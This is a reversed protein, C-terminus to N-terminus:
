RSAQTEPMLTMVTYRDEPFYKKLMAHVNEKTLSDTRESRLPIRRADRGLIHMAQLSNLWYGNQRLSTELERKETEKVIQLDSDSPGEKKLRELETIVAKALKDANDPSSGFQVSTTGYGQQPSLDSSCVDSGTM